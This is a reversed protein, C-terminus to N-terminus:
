RITARIEIELMAADDLPVGTGDWHSQRNVFSLCKEALERLERIAADRADLLPAIDRMIFDQLDRANMSECAVPGNSFWTTAMRSAIQELEAVDPKAAEVRLRRVEAILRPLDTRAHAIFNANAEACETRVDENRCKCVTVTGAPLSYKVVYEHEWDLFDRLEYYWNDGTAADARKQMEDLEANTIPTDPTM